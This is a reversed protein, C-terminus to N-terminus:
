WSWVIFFSGHLKFTTPFLYIIIIEVLFYFTFVPPYLSNQFGNHRHPHTKIKELTLPLMLICLCQTLLALRMLM